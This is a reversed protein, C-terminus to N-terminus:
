CFGLALIAPDDLMTLVIYGGVRYFTPLLSDAVNILIERMATIRLAARGASLCLRPPLFFIGSFRHANNHSHGAM